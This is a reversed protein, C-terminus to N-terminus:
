KSPPITDVREMFLGLNRPWGQDFCEIRMTRVGTPLLIEEESLASPQARWNDIVIADDVFVRIGDDAITRIQYRGADIQFRRVATMAFPKTLVAEIQKSEKPNLNSLDAVQERTEAPRAAVTAMDPPLGDRDKDFAYYATEWDGTWRPLRQDFPRQRPDSVIQFRFSAGGAPVHGMGLRIANNSYEYRVDGYPGFAIQEVRATAVNFKGSDLGPIESFLLRSKEKPKWLQGNIMFEPVAYKNAESEIGLDTIRLTHFDVEKSEISLRTNLDSIERSVWSTPTTAATGMVTGHVGAATKDNIISGTGEDLPWYGALDAESGTLRQGMDARIQEATRAINWLRVDAIQGALFRGGWVTSTGFELPNTNGPRTVSIRTEADPRGNIALAIRDNAKYTAAVHYWQGAEIPTQSEVFQENAAYFGFRDNTRAQLDFDSGSGSKAAITMLGAESPLRSFKVWLSLTAESTLDLHAAHPVLISSDLGNLEIAANITRASRSISAATASLEKIHINRYAVVGGHNTLAIQGTRRALAQQLNPDTTKLDDLALDQVCEGNVLVTLQRNQLTIDMSNWDNDNAAKNIAPSLYGLDGTNVASPVGNRIGIELATPYTNADGKALIFIGGDGSDAAQATVTPNFELRLQFDGYERETLLVGFDSKENPVTIAGDRVIWINRTRQKDDVPIWGKLEKGNFLSVWGDTNNRESVIAPNAASSLPSSTEAPQNERTTAPDPRDISPSPYQADTTLQMEDATIQLIRRGDKNIEFSEPSHVFTNGHQVSFTHHGLTVVVSFEEGKPSQASITHSNGDVLLTLEGGQSRLWEDDVRVMLTQNDSKIYFVTYAYVSLFVLVGVLAALVGWQRLFGPEPMALLRGKEFRYRRQAAPLRSYTHLADWLRKAYVNGPKLKLLRKVLSEIGDMNERRERDKIDSLLQEAELEKSQAKELLEEMAETRRLSPIDELLQICGRYDHKEFLQQATSLLASLGAPNMAKAEARVGPLKTRAWEAVAKAGVQKEQALKELDQIAAAYQGRKLMEDIHAKQIEFPSRQRDTGDPRIPAKSLSKRVQQIAAVVEAMSAFRRDPDKRLLKLCLDDIDESLDKRLRSPVPPADRLVKALMEPVSGEFPLRSTLLEFLIVGLSYIDSRPGVKSQEGKVQEPAMYAPTGILLGEQTMRSENSTGIRRALGFDTVHPHFESDVLINGPKLDRHVVGSSHAHGVADAITTIMQLISDISQLQQSGIFQTLPAGDIYDMTIYPIGEHKGADFVSCINPHKLGAAAKAERTFRAMFDGGASGDSKPLKLAVQRDLTTDLALYVSGMAGEGLPRLLQYRGFKRDCFDSATDSPVAGQILTERVTTPVPKPPQKPPITQATALNGEATEKQFYSRLGEALDPYAQLLAAASVPQGADKRKVYEALITKLRKQKEPDTSPQNM